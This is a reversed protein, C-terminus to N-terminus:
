ESPTLDESTLPLGVGGYQEAMHVQQSLQLKDIRVSIPEYFDSALLRQRRVTRPKRGEQLKIEYFPTTIYWRDLRFAGKESDLDGELHLRRGDAAMYKIGARLLDLAELMDEDSDETFEVKHLQRQNKYEVVVYVTDPENKKILFGYQGEGDEKFRDMFACGTGAALLVFVACAAMGLSQHRQM